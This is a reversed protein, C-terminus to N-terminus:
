KKIRLKKLKGSSAKAIIYDNYRKLGYKIAFFLGVGAAAILLILKYPIVWFGISTDLSKGSDGYVVHLKATFNGLAWGPDWTQDFRRISKPLVNKPMNKIDTPDGNVRVEGVKQGFANFIQVTGTPKIHVNGDNNIREVFAIPGFEFFSQKALKPTGTYLDALTASEKVDGSINLLVLSGISASLAVGSQELEPTTGTFRIVAYHGGPEADKPVNIPFTITKTQKSALMFPDPSAIWHRLSHPTDQDPNFIINPDGTEDKAGFDNFETKILLDGASINTIKITAATTDGPNAKLDVLPPSISFAQGSEAHAAIASVWLGAIAVGLLLLGSIAVFRKRLNSSKTSM